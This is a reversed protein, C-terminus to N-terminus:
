KHLRPSCDLRVTVTNLTFDNDFQRRFRLILHLDPTQVVSQNSITFGQRQLIIQEVNKAKLDYTFIQM